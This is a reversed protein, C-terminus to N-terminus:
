PLCSALTGYTNDLSYQQPDLCLMGRSGSSEPVLELKKTPHPLPWKEDAADNTNYTRLGSKLCRCVQNCDEEHLAAPGSQM